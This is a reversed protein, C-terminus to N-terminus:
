MVMLLTLTTRACWVIMEKHVRCCCVLSPATMNYCARSSFSSTIHREDRVLLVYLTKDTIHQSSCPCLGLSCSPQSLQASTTILQPSKAEPIHDPQNEQSLSFSQCTSVPSIGSIFLNLFTFVAKLLKKRRKRGRHHSSTRATRTAPNATHTHPRWTQNM